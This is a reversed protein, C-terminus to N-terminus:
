NIKEPYYYNEKKQDSIKKVIRNGQFTGIYQAFRFKIIGIIEKFFKKEKQAAKLDSFVSVSIYRLIDFFNIQMEPLIEKMALAEREYRRKTQIWSEDHIHFVKASSVYEIKGGDQFFRKALEMDELGTIHEDFLYKKWVSRSIASNANNCFFEIDNEDKEDPFYKKFIMTESFKTTDRGIQGGYTYGAKGSKIPKVLSSIWDSDTPICHGSIYILIDGRAFDSGMNLSRGFTFDNKSINTIRCEYLKAIEITRDTSGSDIIVTEIDDDDMQQNKIAILLEELYKDENLTRIIISILM